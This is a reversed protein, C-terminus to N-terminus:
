NLDSVTTMLGVWAYVMFGDRFEGTLGSRLQSLRNLFPFCSLDQFDISVPKATKEPINLCAFASTFNALTKALEEMSARIVPVNASVLQM